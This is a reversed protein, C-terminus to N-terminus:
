GVVIEVRGIPDGRQEAEDILQGRILAGYDDFPVDLLAADSLHRLTQVPALARDLLKLQAREFREPRPHLGAMGSRVPICHSSRARASRGRAANLARSFASRSLLAAIVM